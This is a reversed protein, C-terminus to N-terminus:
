RRRITSNPTGSNGTGYICRVRSSDNRFISTLKSSAAIKDSVASEEIGTPMAPLM